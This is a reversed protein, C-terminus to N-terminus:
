FDWEVGLEKKIILVLNPRRDPINFDWLIKHMYNELVSELKYIYWLRGSYRVFPVTEANMEKILKTKLM